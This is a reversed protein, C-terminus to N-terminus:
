GPTGDAEEPEQSWQLQHWPDPGSWEDAAAVIPALERPTPHELFDILDIERDFEARIRSRIRVATLSTAGLDLLHSDAHIDPVGLVSRWIAAVRETIADLDEGPRTTPEDTGPM